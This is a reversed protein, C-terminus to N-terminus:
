ERNDPTFCMWHLLGSLVCKIFVFAPIIHQKYCKNCNHNMRPVFLSLIQSLQKYHSSINKSKGLSKVWDAAEGVSMHVSRNIEGGFSLVWVVQVRWLADWFSSMWGFCECRGWEYCVSRCVGVVPPTVYVYRQLKLSKKWVFWYKIISYYFLIVGKWMISPVLTYKVLFANKKETDECYLSGAIIIIWFCWCCTHSQSCSM